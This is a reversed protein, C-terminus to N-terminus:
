RIATATAQEAARGLARRALVGAIERRYEASAHIDSDQDLDKTARKAAERFLAEGPMEGLLLEEAARARVPKPGGFVIRAQQIAGREGLTLLCGVGALAFDGYRRSFEHFAAGTGAPPKSVRIEVLLEDPALVTAMPGLFFDEATVVRERAQSRIVFLGEHAVMAVPLEAAPYAHALSGGVTGRTRIQVHGIYCTAEHLLPWGSAVDRARELDRQRTMAGIRLEGGELKLYSLEAVPNLDVLHAPRALRFNMMPVLSQGGALPRATDGLKSLLALAEALTTPDYYEFQAPKM